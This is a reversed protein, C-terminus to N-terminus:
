IQSAPAADKAAADQKAKEAARAKATAEFVGCTNDTFVFVDEDDLCLDIGFEECVLGTNDVVQLDYVGCSLEVELTQDPGLGNSPALNDGWSRDGDEAIYIEDLFFGSQNDIILFNEDDSVIICGSATLLTGSIAIAAALTLTRSTASMTGTQAFM